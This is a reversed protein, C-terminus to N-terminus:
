GNVVIGVLVDHARREVTPGNGVQGIISHYLDRAEHATGSCLWHRKPRQRSARPTIQLQHPVHLLQHLLRSNGAAITRQELGNAGTATAYLDIWAVHGSILGQADTATILPIFRIDTNKGYGIGCIGAHRSILANQGRPIVYDRASVFAQMPDASLKVANTIPYQEYLPTVGNLNYTDLEGQRFADDEEVHSLTVDSLYCSHRGQSIKSFSIEFAVQVRAVDSLDPLEKRTGGAFYRFDYPTLVYHAWDRRVFPLKTRWRAGDSMEVVFTCVDTYEDGPKAYFSIVNAQAAREAVTANLTAWNSLNEVKYFL